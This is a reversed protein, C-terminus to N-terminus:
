RERMEKMIQANTVIATEINLIEMPLFIEMGIPSNTMKVEIKIEMIQIHQGFASINKRITNVLILIRNVKMKMVMVTATTCHFGAAVSRKYAVGTTAIQRLRQIMINLFFPFPIRFITASFNITHHM